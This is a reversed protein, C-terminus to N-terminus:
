AVQAAIESALSVTPVVLMGAAFLAAFVVLLKTM